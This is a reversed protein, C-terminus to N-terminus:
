VLEEIAQRHDVLFQPRGNPDHISTTKVDIGLTHYLTAFVEQLHVPRDKADEANATSTGIVQGMKLGGGSLFCHSLRSWHDRGASSNVRPTRGFEGWMVITVDNQMQRDHLDQILSSMARDLKPLQRRLQNFNDSHTDWGGWDFTVVRVGAEVLRRARLFM